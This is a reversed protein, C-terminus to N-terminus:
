PYVPQTWAADGYSSEVRARVYGEGGAVKYTPNNDTSIQLVKGGKGLFYTRFKENTRPATKIAIENTSISLDALAVGNSAYFDGDAIARMIEAKTLDTGRVMVWGRGPNSLEKGFKKFYHADDVAIGRLRKGASLVADWMEDLSEFGGGGHNNVEPHGNYVEFLGLNNVAAIDKSSEAWGFNPHNLSPVGQHERIANVNKQITETVSNAKLPEVLSALGFANIHIPLKGFSTTVEEGPILMFKDKAGHVANLGEVSTLYNHDTLVLFQYRHERYWETVENPTSDGDSNLTHTHLNGKFWRKEPAASGAAAWLATLAAAAAFSRTILPNTQM